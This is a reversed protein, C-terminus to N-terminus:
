TQILERVPLAGTKRVAKKTLYNQYLLLSAVNSSETRLSLLRHIENQVEPISRWPVIEDPSPVLRKYAASEFAVRQKSTLLEPHEYYVLRHALRRYKKDCFQRALLRRKPWSVTHFESMIEEDQQSAFPLEYIQEELYAPPPFDPEAATAANQLRDLFEPTKHICAVREMVEAENKFPTLQDETAEYLAWLVPAVNSRITVFPGGQQKQLLTLDRVSMSKLQEINTNVDLCYHRTKRDPNIGFQTLVRSRHRKGYFQSAVFADEDGLFSEVVRKQSFKLFRSWIDPARAKVIRCLESIMAVKTRGKKCTPRSIGNAEALSELNFTEIGSNDIGPSIVDPHLNNTVKCLEMVDARTNSRSNTLFPRYLCQYLAQRLFEEDFSLSNFGLFAAPSWLELTSQIKSVMAYHSPLSPDLLQDIRLETLELAEVSPLVHPMLRCSIEFSDIENLNFDTRLANFRVIQDFRTLLGTTTVDFFVFSM